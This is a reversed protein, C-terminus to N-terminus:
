LSVQHVLALIERNKRKGPTTEVFPLISPFTPAPAILLLSGSEDTPSGVNNLNLLEQWLAGTDVEPSSLAIEADPSVTTGQRILSEQFKNKIIPLSEQTSLISVKNYSPSGESPAWTQFAAALPDKTTQQSFFPRQGPYGLEFVTPRRVPSKTTTTTTARSSSNNVRIKNSSIIIKKKSKSTKLQQVRDTLGMRAILDASNDWEDPSQICHTLTRLGDDDRISCAAVQNSQM